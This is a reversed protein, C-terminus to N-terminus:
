RLLLGIFTNLYLIYPALCAATRRSSKNKETEQSSQHQVMIFSQMACVVGALM